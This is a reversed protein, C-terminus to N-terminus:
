GMTNQYMYESMYSVILPYYDRIALEQDTTHRKREEYTNKIERLQQVVKKINVRM